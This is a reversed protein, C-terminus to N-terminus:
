LLTMKALIEKQLDSQVKSAAAAAVDKNSEETAITAAGNSNKSEETSATADPKTESADKSAQQASELLTAYQALFYEKITEQM